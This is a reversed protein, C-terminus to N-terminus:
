PTGNFAGWADANNNGKRFPISFGRGGNKLYEDLTLRFHNPVSDIGFDIGADKLAGMTRTNCNDNFPTLTCPNVNRGDYIPDSYV